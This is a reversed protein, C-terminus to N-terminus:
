FKQYFPNQGYDKLVEAAVKSTTDAMTYGLAKVMKIIDGRSGEIELYAPITPFKDIEFHVKGLYFSIRKKERYKIVKMGLALLIKEANEFDGVTTEIEERESINADAAIFRKYTFEVLKKGRTRLRCVQRSKELRGNPFDYLKEVVLHDSLKKAGIKKLKAAIAKPDINLIKLEIEHM